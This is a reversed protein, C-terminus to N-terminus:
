RWWNPLPSTWSVIRQRHWTFPISHSQSWRGSPSYITCAKALAPGAAMHIAGDVLGQSNSIVIVSPLEVSRRQRRRNTWMCWCSLVSENYVVPWTMVWGAIDIQCRQRDCGGRNWYYWRSKYLLLTLLSSILLACHDSALWLHVRSLLSRKPPYIPTEVDKIAANAFLEGVTRISQPQIRTSMLYNVTLPHTNTLYFNNSEPSSVWRCDIINGLVLTICLTRHNSLSARGLVLLVAGLDPM